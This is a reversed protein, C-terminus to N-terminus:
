TTWTFFTALEDTKLWLFSEEPLIAQGAIIELENIENNLAEEETTGFTGFPPPSVNCYKEKLFLNVNRICNQPNDPAFHPFENPYKHNLYEAYFRCKRPDRCKILMQENNM